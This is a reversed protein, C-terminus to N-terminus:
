VRPASYPVIAPFANLTIIIARQADIAYEDLLTPTVLVNEQRETAIPPKRALKIAIANRASQIGM